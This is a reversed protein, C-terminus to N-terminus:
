CFNFNYSSKGPKRILRSLNRKLEPLLNSNFHDPITPKSKKVLSILPAADEASSTGPKENDNVIFTENNNVYSSLKDEYM